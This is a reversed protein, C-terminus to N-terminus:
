LKVACKNPLQALHQKSSCTAIHALSMGLQPACARLNKPRKLGLLTRYEEVPAKWFALAVRVVFLLEAKGRDASSQGPDM